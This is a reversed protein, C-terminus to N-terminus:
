CATKDDRLGWLSRWSEAFYKRRGSLEQWERERLDRHYNDCDFVMELERLLSRRNISKGQPAGFWNYDGPCSLLHGNYATRVFENIPPLNFALVPCNVALAELAYFGAADKLRPYFFWHHQQYATLRWDRSPKRKFELRDPFARKLDRWIGAAARSWNRHHCITFVFDKPGDLLYGVAQALSPAHDRAMEGEALLLIRLDRGDPPTLRDQFAVGSDWPVELVNSHVKRFHCISYSAHTPCVIQDYYRMAM